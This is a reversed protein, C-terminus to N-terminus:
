RLGAAGQAGTAPQRAPTALFPQVSKILQSMEYGVNRPDAERSALVSLVSRNGASSIFLMAGDLEVMVQRVEDSGAFVTGAARGTSYLNSAIAAMKDAQDRGFGYAATMLGDGALLVAGLAHPINKILEELLWGIDSGGDAQVNTM